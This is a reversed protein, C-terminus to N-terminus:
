APGKETPLPIAHDADAGGHLRQRLRKPWDRKMCPREILLYYIMGVVIAPPLLLGIGAIWASLVSQPALLRLAPGGLAQMFPVHTLYISYCAGGILAIWPAGIVRRGLPGRAAGYFLLVISVARLFITLGQRLPDGSVHPFLAGSALLLVFGIALGVDYRRMAPQKFPNNAVSRDCCVIGLMFAYGHTLLTFNLWPSWFGLTAEALILGLVIASGIAVRQALGGLRLYGALILPALLYFQIEIELSWLPPNLRPPAGFLLGHGYVLSALFSQWLSVDSKNFAPADQPHYGSVILFLFCGLLALMYPPELRFLRRKFFESLRPAKGFLFPFAIIYGSIFFFLEVGAVGHPLWGALSSDAMVGPPLAREGRLAAHFVAVQVIAIFRLGDIQPVYSGSLVVRGFMAPIRSLMSM